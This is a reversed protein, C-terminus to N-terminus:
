KKLRLDAAIADRDLRWAVDRGRGSNPIPNTSASLKLHNRLFKRLNSLHCTITSKEPDSGEWVLQRLEADNLWKDHTALEKLLRWPKGSLPFTKGGYSFEATGFHWEDNPLPETATSTKPASKQDGSTSSIPGDVQGKSPITTSPTDHAIRTARNVAQDAIPSGNPLEENLRRQIGAARRRQGELDGEDVTQFRIEAGGCLAVGVIDDEILRLIVAEAHELMGIWILAEWPEVDYEPANGAGGFSSPVGDHALVLEVQDPGFESRRWEDLEQRLGELPSPGCTRPNNAWWKGRHAGQPPKPFPPVRKTAHSSDVLHSLSLAQEPTM